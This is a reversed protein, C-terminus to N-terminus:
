VRKESETRPDDIELGALKQQGFLILATLLCSVLFVGDFWVDFRSQDLSAGLNNRISHGFTLPLNRCLVIATAVNYLGILLAFVLAMSQQNILRPLVKSMRALVLLCARLSGLIVIGSLMFGISRAWMERDINEDYHAAILALLQSVPDSSESKWPTLNWVTTCIRYVCYIVFVVDFARFLVGGTTKNRNQDDFAAQAAMLDALLSNHLDQLTCLDTQAAVLEQSSPSGMFRAVIGATEAERAELKKILRVKAEIHEASSDSSQKLRALEFESVIRKRSFLNYCASMAGFASVLAIASIGLFGIRLVCAVLFTQSKTVDRPLINGIAYFVYLQTAFTLLTFFVKYRNTIGTGDSFYSYDLMIPLVVIMLVLLSIISSHWVTARISPIWDGFEAWILYFVLVSLGSTIAFAAKVARPTSDLESIFVPLAQKYSLTIFLALLSLACTSANITEWNCAM